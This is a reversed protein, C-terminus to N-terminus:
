NSGEHAEILGLIETDLEPKELVVAFEHVWYRIREFDLQPHVRIINEIDRM